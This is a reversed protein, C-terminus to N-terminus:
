KILNQEIETELEKVESLGGVKVLTVDGIKDIVLHTPFSEVKCKTRILDSSNPIIHYDFKKKQFFRNLSTKSDLALGLFVVDKGKYKAVLKNLLPMEEVCPRCGIFWFNMVVVKGRLSALTFTNGELDQMKASQAEKTSLYQKIANEEAKFKKLLVEQAKRSKEKEEPTKPRIVFAKALKDKDVYADFAYNRTRLLEGVKEKSIKLGDNIFIVKEPTKPDTPKSFLKYFFTQYSEQDNAKQLGVLLPNTTTQAYTHVSIILITLLTKINKNM